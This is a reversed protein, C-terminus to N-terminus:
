VVGHQKLWDVSKKIAQNAPGFKFDLENMAKKCEFWHFLSSTIATESSMGLNFGCANAIDSVLGLGTLVFKPLLINPPSQNAESAIVKFLDKILLNEGCLVYREGIRGKKYASIMGNVCDEVAIVNVGGPTYFKLRGKAVKIQNKRSGKRSDGFGYITSPNIITANLQNRSCQEKILSEAERKTEFYGLNLHALNFKSDENRIENQTYSAGMTVVSSTHLMRIPNSNSCEQVAKIVNNTGVVNIQHLKERDKPRYAVFGALHFIGNCDILADKISKIDLIDGGCIKFDVGPKLKNEVLADLNSNPRTLIKIEYNEFHLQKVLWSGLFGTAGTVLVKNKM